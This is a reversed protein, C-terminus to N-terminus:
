ANFRPQGTIRVRCPADRRHHVGVNAQRDDLPDCVECGTAWTPGGANVWRIPRHLIERIGAPTEIGDPDGPVPGHLADVVEVVLADGCTAIVRDGRSVETECRCWVRTVQWAIKPSETGTSAQCCGHVDGKAVFRWRVRNRRHGGKRKESPGTAACGVGQHEIAVIAM